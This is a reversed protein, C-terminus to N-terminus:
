RILIGSFEDGTNKYDDFTNRLFREIEPLGKDLIGRDFSNIQNDSSKLTKFVQALEDRHKQQEPSRNKIRSHKKNIQNKSDVM